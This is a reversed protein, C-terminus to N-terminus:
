SKPYPGPSFPIVLNTTLFGDMIADSVAHFTNRRHFASQEPVPINQSSDVERLWKLNLGINARFLPADM